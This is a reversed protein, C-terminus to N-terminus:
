DSIQLYDMVGRQWFARNIASMNRLTKCDGCIREEHLDRSVRHGLVDVDTLEARTNGVSRPDYLKVNFHSLFGWSWFLKALREKQLIDKEV